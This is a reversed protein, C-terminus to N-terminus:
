WGATYSLMGTVGNASNLSQQNYYIGLSIKQANAIWYDTNASVFARTRDVSPGVMNFDGLYYISGSYGDIKNQIDQEVGVSAGVTLKPSLHGMVKAGVYATTASQTTSNYSIPFSAGSTETYASRSVRTSRIGIFPSAILQDNAEFGYAVELQAGQTTISSSGQGAETNALATRNINVSNDSYAASLKIQTGLNTGSPAYVAFLGALPNANKVAYNNPSSNSLGQDLFIGVRVNPNIKYGVQINGATQSTSPGSVNTHRGGVGVCVNNAGYVTCDSNLNVALATNQANLLSNLQYSSNALATYTNQVDVLGGNAWAGYVFAHITGGAVDAYGVIVKGDASVSDASSFTGGVLTGLDLMTSGSYKFAHYASDGTLYSYGVIVSGDASVAYAYSNTGGLTGLDLMTSGSYKFAHTIIDGALNSQGVIVAGDASVARAYSYIGGLTGLDLMTSGSYKFAHYASDGTLYSYGVIVAGDASVASAYSNTGGLTGLDLMTSGSYKFAHSSIDGALNSQGVIVAGDASVASAFGYTGGLTGLDLMTSGSYKFAHSSIDGALNSYGVIVAGDASVASASSNTGGLTGLDLMTSGSYKFAHGAGGAIGAFGVIVTGDASVAYASSYTGGLTGLDLMTSGSYKFAHYASDGALYSTGVIVTGNDSVIIPDDQEIRTGGLTGLDNMSQAQLHPVYLVGLFAAVCLSKKFPFSTTM